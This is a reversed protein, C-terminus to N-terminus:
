MQNEDPTAWLIHKKNVFITPLKVPNDLANEYVQAQFVVLFPERNTAILDSLRDHGPERKINVQGNIKTGDILTIRITRSETEYTKSM